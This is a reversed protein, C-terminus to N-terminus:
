EYQFYIDGDVGGTPETTGFTIKRHNEVKGTHATLNNSLNKVDESAAKNSMEKDLSEVANEINNMVDAEVKTGTQIVQGFAPVLTLTGDINDQKKFTRPKEFVGNKWVTKKYAM